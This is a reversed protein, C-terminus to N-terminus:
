LNDIAELVENVDPRQPKDYEKSWLVVGDEVLINARSSIGAKDVFIGLDRAVEGIPNFDSLLRLKKLSLVTAWVNKSPHPDVSLGLPTVGRKQFEDYALELDRM